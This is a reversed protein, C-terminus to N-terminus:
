NKQENLEKWILDKLESIGQNAISSIFVTTIDPLKKKLKKLQSEDVLDCKSIALIRTKDLLEPNYTALEKILIKFEKKISESTAPIMFLLMSNREIHRLFRLGLGRGESAGQIIGPIDAMVFSKNDRYFVM